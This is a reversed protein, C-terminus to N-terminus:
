RRVARITFVIPFRVDDDALRDRPLDEVALGALFAACTFVNGRGRIVSFEDGFDSALIARCSLETFRWYDDLTTDVRTAGPVTALLVGEPRLIRRVERLASHVDYVYQLTQTLIVCDFTADAIAPANTLDAVITAEDNAADIDVVDACEVNTGFRRTYDASKVELVRGRIDGRHEALFSEIYYRDIPLGRDYGWRASLPLGRALRAVLLPALLSRAARM